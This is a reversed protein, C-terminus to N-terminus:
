GGGGKKPAPPVDGGRRGGGGDPPADDGAAPAASKIEDKDISGNRDKDLFDFFQRMRAPVEDRTLKGDGNKDYQAIRRDIEQDARALVREQNKSRVAAQLAPLDQEDAPVVMLTISGMEDTSERGWVVRKPPKNPNNPNDKSNDYVLEARLVADKPLRVPSAYTYRNQWDFDWDRILLLPEKRGGECEAALRLSRCLMHAHGGVTVADVDCPLKFEDALRWSKEGAPIDIGATFGFFPPLQIAVLTRQPPAKAFFLGLTTQETEKRGSPHFHCQLVLDTNKPLKIALGEPLHEPMGGVAWGGIMPARRLRMGSFGPKGDVGDQGQGERHEDLFFLTHHLVARASPRVEIATIWRDEPLGLPIVFNRYVDRGSAPVEFGKAMRVVLDPEGLQWGATFKPAPPLKDAPGEPMGAAVWAAITAIAADPLRLSNRFEGHGPEPHWPPMFRDKTVREIMRGRKRVDQYTLLPFPAVEGPRHCGACNKLVIPAIHETFTPNAPAGPQRAGGTAAPSPAPGPQEQTRPAVVTMLVLILGTTSTHM